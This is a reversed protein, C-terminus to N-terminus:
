PQHSAETSSTVLRIVQILNRSSVCPLLLSNVGLLQIHVHVCEYLVCYCFPSPFTSFFTHSHWHRAPTSSVDTSTQPDPSSQLLTTSRSSSTWLLYPTQSFFLTISTATIFSLQQLVEQPFPSTLPCCDASLVALSATDERLAKNLEGFSKSMEKLPNCLRSM